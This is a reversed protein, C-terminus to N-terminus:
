SLNVCFAKLLLSVHAPFSVVVVGVPVHHVTLGARGDSIKIRSLRYLEVLEGRQAFEVLAPIEDPAFDQPRKLLYTAEDNTVVSVTNIADPSAVARGLLGALL